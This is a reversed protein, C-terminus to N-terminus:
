YGAIKLMELPTVARVSSNRFDRINCTVIYKAGANQACKDQLCDEFDHFDRNEIAEEVQAQPASAITLISCVLRLWFRADADSHTKRIVYWIVPLFHFAAYGNIKGESCLNMVQHSSERFPDERGTIYNVIVNADILVDM